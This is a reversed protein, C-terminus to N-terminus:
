FSFILKDSLFQEHFNLNELLVYLFFYVNQNQHIPFFGVIFLNSQPVIKSLYKITLYVKLFIPNYFFKYYMIDSRDM